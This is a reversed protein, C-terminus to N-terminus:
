RGSPIAIPAPLRGLREFFGACGVEGGACPPLVPAVGVVRGADLFVARVDCRSPLPVPLIRSVTTGSAYLGVAAADLLLGGLVQAVRGAEFPAPVGIPVLDLVSTAVAGLAILRDVSLSGDAVADQMGADELLPLLLGGLGGQYSVKGAGARRVADRVLGLGALMGPSGPALGLGGLAPVVSNVPRGSRGDREPGGALALDVVGDKDDVDQGYSRMGAAIRHRVSEAVDFLM